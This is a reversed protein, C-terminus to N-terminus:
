ATFGPARPARTARVMAHGDRFGTKRARARYVGAHRLSITITADGRHNTRARRGAFTIVAGPV